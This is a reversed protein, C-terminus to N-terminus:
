ASPGTSSVELAKLRVNLNSEKIHGIIMTGAALVAGPETILVQAEFGLSYYKGKEVVVQVTDDQSTGNSYICRKTGSVVNWGDLGKLTESGDSIVLRFMWMYKAAAVDGGATMVGGQQEIDLSVGGEVVIAADTNARFAGIVNTYYGNFDAPAIKAVVSQDILTKPDLSMYQWNVGDVTGNTIEPYEDLNTQGTFDVKNNNVLSQIKLYCGGEVLTLVAGEPYGGIAKCVAPDFGWYGKGCQGMFPAYSAMKGIYNIQGRQVLNSGDSAPATDYNPGFGDQMSFQGSVLPATVDGRGAFPTDGPLVMNFGALKGSDMKREKRNNYRGIAM